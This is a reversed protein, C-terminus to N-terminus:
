DAEKETPSSDGKGPPNKGGEGPAADMGSENSHNVSDAPLGLAQKRYTEAIGELVAAPNEHNVCFELFQSTDNGFHRRVQSPLEEFMTKADAVKQQATQFDDAPLDLYQGEYKRVHELTGTKTYRAMINNIDCEAKHSQETLGESPDFAMAYKREPTPNSLEVNKAM